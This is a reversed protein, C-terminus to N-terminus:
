GFVRAWAAGLQDVGVAGPAMWAAVALMILGACLMIAAGRPAQTRLVSIIAAVVSLACFFVGLLLLIDAM